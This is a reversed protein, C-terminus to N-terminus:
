KGFLSIQEVMVFLFEVPLFLVAITMATYRLWGRLKWAQFVSGFFGAAMLGLYGYFVTRSYVEFGPEWYRAPDYAPFTKLVAGFFLGLGFFLAIPLLTKMILILNSKKM